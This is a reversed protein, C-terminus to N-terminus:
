GYFPALDEELCFLLADEEGDAGGNLATRVCEPGKM